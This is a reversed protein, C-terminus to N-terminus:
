WRITCYSGPLRLIKGWSGAQQRICQRRLFLFEDPTQNRITRRPQPPPISYLQETGAAAAPPTTDARHTQLSMEDGATSNGTRTRTIEKGATIYIPYPAPPISIELMNYSITDYRQYRQIPKLSFVWVLGLGDRGHALEVVVSEVDHKRSKAERDAFRRTAHPPPVEDVNSVIVPWSEPKNYRCESAHARILANPQLPGQKPYVARQPLDLKIICCM